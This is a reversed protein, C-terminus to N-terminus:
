APRVPTRSFVGEGNRIARLLDSLSGQQDVSYAPHGRDIRFDTVLFTSLGLTSAVMDEQMDNGIMVCEEPKLGVRDSQEVVVCRVSRQGLDVALALGVPGAGVILVDTARETM